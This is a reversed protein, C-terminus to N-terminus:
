YCAPASTDPSVPLSLIEKNTFSIRVYLEVLEETGRVTVPPPQLRGKAFVKAVINCSKQYYHCKLTM